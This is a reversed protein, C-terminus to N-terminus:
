WNVPVDNTPVEKEERGMGMEGSEKEWENPWPGRKRGWKNMRRNTQNKKGPHVAFM